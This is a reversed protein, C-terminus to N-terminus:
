WQGCCLDTHKLDNSTRDSVVLCGLSGVSLLQWVMLLLKMSKILLLYSSCQGDVKMKGNVMESWWIDSFMLWWQDDGHMVSKTGHGDSIMLWRQFGVKLRWQDCVLLPLQDGVMVSSFMLQRDEYVVVKVSCLVVMVSSFWWQFL